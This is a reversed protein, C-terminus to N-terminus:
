QFARIAKGLSHEGGEDRLEMYLTLLRLSINANGGNVVGYMKWLPPRLPLSPSIGHSVHIKVLKHCQPIWSRPHIHPYLTPGIEALVKLSALDFGHNRLFSIFSAPELGTLFSAHQHTQLVNSGKSPSFPSPLKELVGVLIESIQGKITLKVSDLYFNCRAVARDFLSIPLSVASISVSDTRLSVTGRVWAMLPLFSCCYLLCPSNRLPCGMVEALVHWSLLVSRM